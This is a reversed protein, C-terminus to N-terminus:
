GIPCPRALTALQAHVCDEIALMRFLFIRFNIRVASQDIMCFNAGVFIERRM